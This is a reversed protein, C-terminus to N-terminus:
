VYVADMIVVDFEDMDEDDDDDDDDEGFNEEFWKVADGYHVTVRPDDLCSDSVGVFDSCDNWGSLHTRATQMLMEDVELLVVHQVTKHKLVERLVAGGGAGVIVVRQPNEHTVMAPHVLAEHYAREGYLRSQLVGDLFFLRDKLFLKPNQAEYSSSGEKQSNHLWEKTRFRPEIADYIDVRQFDTVVTAVGDKELDADGLFRDLDSLHNLGDRNYRFGRKKHTWVTEPPEKSGDRPVGFLQKLVPVLPMLSKPGCTFLDLTIVGQSPWTHFSVHSELLVGVCSVGEPDLGHCHYSLLTLESQQIVDIMAHALRLESDLFSSQVNRIDVLLHQGAPQYDGNAPEEITTVPKSHKTLNIDIRRNGDNDSLYEATGDHNLLANQSSRVTRSGDEFLQSTYRTFPVDKGEILPPDPLQILSRNSRNSNSFSSSKQSSLMEKLTFGNGNGMNRGMTFAAWSSCILLMAIFPRSLQVIWANKDLQSNNFGKMNSSPSTPMKAKKSSSSSISPDQCMEKLVAVVVINQNDRQKQGERGASFDTVKGIDVSLVRRDSMRIVRHHVRQGTAVHFEHCGDDAKHFLKERRLAQSVICDGILRDNTAASKTSKAM